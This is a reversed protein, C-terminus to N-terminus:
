KASDLAPYDTYGAPGRSYFTAPDPTNLPAGARIRAPLDPNALFPTGFAIADAKGEAIATAAEEPTFGMNLILPGHFNERVPTVVDGHKEGLLDARMLHLYALGCADLRKALWTALGIPDSDSMSNFSNLPSIRVGVHGSGIVGSVAEIIELLLRARNEVSGGYPGTRRNAGDRLFEDLLYGNAAHIEVGDFGAAKARAAAKAFGAVIEPLEEDRLERPVVYPKNGEPTHVEDNTIALASPAVPQAGNNFLPHCARGGHWLQLFIRGGKAHVAEAVGRWGAIQADNYIGPESHFASNGELVMTAEAIILGASARQAYYEAMLTGPVHGAEARCRTLPAMLIRNPLELSGLALNEFLPAPNM